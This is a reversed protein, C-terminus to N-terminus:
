RVDESRPKPVEAEYPYRSREPPEVYRDLDQVVVNRKWHPEAQDLGEGAPQGAGRGLLWGGLEWARRLVVWVVPLLRYDVPAPSYRGSYVKEVLKAYDDDTLSFAVACGDATHRVVTAQITGIDPLTLTLPAGIPPPQRWILAGGSLSLTDLAVHERQGGREAIAMEHADIREELRLRPREVCAICAVALIGISQVSLVAAIALHDPDLIPGLGPIGALAMGTALLAAPLAFHGLLRWHAVQQMRSSEKATVRFPHRRRGFLGIFAARQVDVAMILRNISSALPLVHGHSLWRGAVAGVIAMPLWHAVFSLFSTEMVFVGTFWFILPALFGMLWFPVFNLVAWFGFHDLLQLRHAFGIRERSFIGWRGRVIQMTGICWRCRQSIYEALGVPALGASLRENLYVTEWGAVSLKVSTLYDETVSETPIGGIEKLAEKRMVWSTGCCFANNWADRAPLLLDYQVRQEEPWVKEARFNFQMPGQNFFHQPTQVLGVTARRFLPLTRRLFNSQPVFDADFVAIFDALGHAREIHAIAHNLNGAKAHENDTRSLYNVGVREALRRVWDRCGDDLVWIRTRPHDIAKAGTITREIIASSENYTPILVDVLPVEPLADFWALNADVEFRRDRFRSVIAANLSQLSIGTMELVLFLWAIGVSWDLSGVPMTHTARWWAYRASLGVLLGLVLCRALPMEPAFRRSLLWIAAFALAGPLILELTSL